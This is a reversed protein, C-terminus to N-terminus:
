CGRSLVGGHKFKNRRKAFRVMKTHIRVIINMPILRIHLTCSVKLKKQMVRLWFVNSANQFM